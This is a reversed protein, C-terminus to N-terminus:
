VSVGTEAFSMVRDLPTLLLAFHNLSRYENLSVKTSILAVAGPLKVLRRLFSIVKNYMEGLGSFLDGVLAAHPHRGSASTEECQM